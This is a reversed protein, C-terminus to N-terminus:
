NVSTELRELAAKAALGLRAGMLSGGPTHGHFRHLFDYISNTKAPTDSGWVFGTSFLMIGIAIISIINHKLIIRLTEM